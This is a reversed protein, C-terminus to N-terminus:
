ILERNINYQREARGQIDILIVYILFSLFSEPNTLTLDLFLSSQILRSHKLSKVKDNRHQRLFEKTDEITDSGTKTYSM